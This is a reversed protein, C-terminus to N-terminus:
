EQAPAESPDSVTELSTAAGAAEPVGPAKAGARPKPAARSRPARPKAEAAAPAGQKTAAAEGTRAAPTAATATAKPSPVRARAARPKAPAAVKAEHTPVAPASSAPASASAMAEGLRALVAAGLPEAAAETSAPLATAAPAAAKAAEAAPREVREPLVDGRYIWVKVGIRGLTTQAEAIGFDVDARLTHLPVRGQRETEVRAMESGGLRGACRMRIGRAGAQMTRLVSQKMARRYAVRREIQDA